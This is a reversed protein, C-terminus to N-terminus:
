HPGSHDMMLMMMITEKAPRARWRATHNCISPFNRGVPSGNSHNDGISVTQRKMTPIFPPLKGARWGDRAMAGKDRRCRLRRETCMPFQISLNNNASNASLRDSLPNWPPVTARHPQMGCVSLRQKSQSQNSSSSSQEVVLSHNYYNPLSQITPANVESQLEQM